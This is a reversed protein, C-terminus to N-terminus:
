SHRAEWKESTMQEVQFCTLVGNAQSENKGTVTRRGMEESSSGGEDKSHARCYYPPLHRQGLSRWGQPLLM